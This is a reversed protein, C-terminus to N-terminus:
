CSWSLCTLEEIDNKKVSPFQKEVSILFDSFVVIKPVPSVPFHFFEQLAKKDGQNDDNKANDPDGGILEM